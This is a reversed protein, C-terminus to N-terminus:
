PAHDVTGLLRPDAFFYQRERVVMRGLVHGARPPSVRAALCRHPQRRRRDRDVARREGFVARRRAPRGNGADAMVRVNVTSPLPNGSNGYASFEFGSVSWGDATVVFDDAGESSLGAAPAPAVITNNFARLDTDAINQDYLPTSDSVALAVPVAITQHRPDDSFVCVTAQHLGSALGTADFAATVAAPAAGAAITGATPSVCAVARRGACLLAVSPRAIALASIEDVPYEGAAPFPGIAQSAAPALPDIVRM